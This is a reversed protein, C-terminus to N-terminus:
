RLFFLIQQLIALLKSVFQQVISYRVRMPLGSIKDDTFLRARATVLHVPAQSRRKALNIEYM